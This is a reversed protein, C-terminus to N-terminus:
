PTLKESTGPGDIVDLDRRKPKPTATSMEVNPSARQKGLTSGVVVGTIKGNGSTSPKATAGADATPNEQKPTDGQKLPNQQPSPTGTPMPTTVDTPATAVQAITSMSKAEVCNTKTKEVYLLAAGSIVAALVVGLLGNLMVKAIGTRPEKVELLLIISKSADPMNQANKFKILDPRLFDFDVKPKYEKDGQVVQTPNAGEFRLAECTWVHDNAEKPKEIDIRLHLRKRM